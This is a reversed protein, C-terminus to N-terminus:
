KFPEIDLQLTVTFHLGNLNIVNNYEDVLKFSVNDLRKLFLNTRFHNTNYFQIISNPSNNVPIQCLINQSNPISSSINYTILNSLLFISKVSMLNICNESILLNSASNYSVNGVFGLIRYCTSLNLFTFNLTNHTFTIKNTMSSYTINFNTMVSLLYNILQNINYNSIPITITYMLSDVIYYLKNNSDHINYFSYPISVNQVSLYIYHGDEIELTNLSFKYVDNFISDAYKSNLYIQYSEGM